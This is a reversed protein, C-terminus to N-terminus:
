RPTTSVPAALLDRDLHDAVVPQELLVEGLREPEREVRDVGFGVPELVRERLLDLRPDVRREAERRVVRM